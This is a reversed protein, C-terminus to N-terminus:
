SESKLRAKVEQLAKRHLKHIGEWSYSKGDTHKMEYAITEWRQCLIYRRSLLEHLKSDKVGDIVSSIEDIKEVAIASKEYCRKRLRHLKDITDALKDAEPSKKVKERSYDVALHNIMTECEELERKAILFDRKANIYVQLKKAVDDNQKM